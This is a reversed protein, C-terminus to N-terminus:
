QMTEFVRLQLQDMQPNQNSMYASALASLLLLLAVVLWGAPQWGLIADNKCLLAHIVVSMGCWFQSTASNDGTFGRMIIAWSM